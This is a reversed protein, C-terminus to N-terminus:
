LGLSQRGDWSQKRSEKKMVGAINKTVGGSGSGQSLLLGPVEEAETWPGHDWEFWFDKLAECTAIGPHFINGLSPIDISKSKYM